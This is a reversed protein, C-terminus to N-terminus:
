TSDADADPGFKSGTPPCTEPAAQLRRRLLNMATYAFIKKNMRRSDFSFHYRRAETGSAGALGICITGVPKEPTGGTPGAIGTTALGYTAGAVRRAGAAMEAATEEHVAGVSDITQPRVGLVEIKARNSYTVASLLFYDSSGSVDTLLDAMLGGSCSEALALTAQKRRLLGGLVEALSRGETSLVHPALRAAIWEQASALTDAAAAAEKGPASIRVQIEPFDACLGLRLQPFATDFGTMKEGVAAEPLGFTTVTLRGDGAGSRGLRRRIMPVVAETLMHRMEHPVGPLFFVACRGLQIMFGPATGIPNPICVAGHPMLAQKLNSPSFLRRRKSFFAELSARADVNAELVVGAALAAAEATLDDATPGLGGTVVALESRGALEKLVAALHDRNDGVCSHRIVTIGEAELARAIFASNSDVVAGSRIEDGTALIEAIM